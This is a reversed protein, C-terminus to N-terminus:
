KVFDKRRLLIGGFGYGSNTIRLNFLRTPNRNLNDFVIEYDDLLSEFTKYQPPLKPLGPQGTGNGSLLIYHYSPLTYDVLTFTSVDYKKKLIYYHTSFAAIREGPPIIKYIKEEMAGASQEVPRASAELLQKTFEVSPVSFNLLLLLSVFIKIIGDNAMLLFVINYLALLYSLFLLYIYQWPCFLQSFIAACLIGTLFCGFIAYPAYGRNKPKCYIYLIGSGALQIWLSIHAFKAIGEWSFSRRLGNCVFNLFGGNGSFWRYISIIHVRLGDVSGPLFIAFAAVQISSPIIVSVLYAPYLKLRERSASLLFL